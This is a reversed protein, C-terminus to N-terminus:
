ELTCETISYGAEAIASNHISMNELDEIPLDDDLFVYKLADLKKKFVREPENDKVVVYVGM